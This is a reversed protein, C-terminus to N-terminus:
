NLSIASMGRWVPLLATVELDLPDTSSNGVTNELVSEVKMLENVAMTLRALQAAAGQLVENTFPDHTRRELRELDMIIDNMHNSIAEMIESM